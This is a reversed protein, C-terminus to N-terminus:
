SIALKGRSIVYKKLPLAIAPVIIVAALIEVTGNLSIITIFIEKIVLAKFFVAMCGLVLITHCVTAIGASIAATIPQNNILKRLLKDIYAPIIGLLMRPVVCMIISYLPAGSAFPSFLLNVPSLSPGTIASYMSILGFALGLVGGATPGLIIAGIIVPIHMTTISVPPIALFGLPTLGLALEISVLLALTTFRTNSKSDNKM